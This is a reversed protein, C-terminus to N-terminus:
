RGEVTLAVSAVPLVALWCNLVLMVGGGGSPGAPQGFIPPWGL